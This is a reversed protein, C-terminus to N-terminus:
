DGAHLRNSSIVSAGLFFSVLFIAVVGTTAVGSVLFRLASSGAEASFGPLLFASFFCFTSAAAEGATAAASFFSLLFGTTASFFFSSFGSCCPLLFFVSGLPNTM